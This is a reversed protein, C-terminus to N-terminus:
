SWAAQAGIMGLGAAAADAGVPQATGGCAAIARAYLASLAPAGIVSVTSGPRLAARVEHGIMLGSLYLEAEPDAMLGALGLSRVGFLHHLLGGAEASRAVGADFVEDCPHAGRDRTQRSLITHDRIAAFAEGTMHTTFAIIRGGSVTAWKSHSGPLCAIGTDVAAGMIQTEEGRMFEPIDDADTTAVGPVLRVVAGDFPVTTLAGALDTIGAPCPVTRSEMWGQRSGVMGSLLVRDEGDSLWDGVCDRLTEAFHDDTVSLIGSARERREAVRGGRLRYARMSSIGWDVGIV